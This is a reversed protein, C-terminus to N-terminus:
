KALYVLFFFSECILLSVMLLLGGQFLKNEIVNERLLVKISSNSSDGKTSTEQSESNM